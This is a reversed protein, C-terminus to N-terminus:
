DPLKKPQWRDMEEAVDRADAVKEPDVGSAAAIDAWIRVVLAAFRDRGVLPFIPEDDETNDLVDSTHKTAM